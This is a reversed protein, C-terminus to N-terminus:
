TSRELAKLRGIMAEIRARAVRTKEMLRAHKEALASHEGKLTQNEQRLRQCCEILEDIRQELRKLDESEVDVDDAHPGFILIPSPDARTLTGVGGDRRAGGGGRVRARVCVPLTYM